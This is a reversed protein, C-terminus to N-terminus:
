GLQVGSFSKAIRGQDDRSLGQEVGLRKLERTFKARSFPQHGNEKCWERYDAYADACTVWAPRGAFDPETAVLREDRWTALPNCERRYSDLEALMAESPAFRGRAKLRYLGELALNLIGPLEADHKADLNTDKTANDFNASFRVILSRRWWGNTKDNIHPPNNTQIIFRATNHFTFPDRGKREVELADGSILSKIWGEDVDQSLESEPCFNVLKGVLGATMFTRDARLSALPLGACNRKGILAEIVHLFRGKGNGGDGITFLAAELSTDPILCLGMFEVLLDRAAKDDLIWEELSQRFRPCDARPDYVVPLLNRARHDPHHQLLELEDLDLAGNQVQVLNRPAADFFDTPRRTEVALLHRIDALNSRRALGGIIKIGDADIEAEEIPEYITGRWEWPAGQVTVLHPRARNIKQAVGLPIPRGRDDFVEISDTEQPVSEARNWPIANTVLERLEDERKLLEIKRLREDLDEGPLPPVVYVSCGASTLAAGIMDRWQEGPKDPDPTLFVTRGHLLRQVMQVVARGPCSGPTAVVSKCGASLAAAADAEGEVVLVPGDPLPWPCILGNKGGKQSVAKPADPSDGFRGSDGRRRRKGVLAGTERRMPFHVERGCPEAGLQRLAEISFGRRDAFEHLSDQWGGAPREVAHGVPKAGISRAITRVEHEPLGARESAVMLEREIADADLGRARLLGALSTLEINRGTGNASM